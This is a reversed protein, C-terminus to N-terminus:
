DSKNTTKWSQSHCSEKSPIDSDQNQSDSRSFSVAMQRHSVAALVGILFDQHTNQASPEELYCWTRWQLDTRLASQCTGFVRSALIIDLWWRAARIGATAFFFSSKMIEIWLELESWKRKILSYCITLTDCSYFRILRSLPPFLPGSREDWQSAVQSHNKHKMIECNFLWFLVHWHSSILQRQSPTVTFLTAWYGRGGPKGDACKFSLKAKHIIIHKCAYKNDTQVQNFRQNLQLLLWIFAEMLSINHLSVLKAILAHFIHRSPGSLDAKDTIKFGSNTLVTVHM